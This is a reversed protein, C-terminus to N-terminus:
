VPHKCDHMIRAALQQTSSCSDCTQQDEVLMMNDRCVTIQDPFQRSDVASEQQTSHVAPSPRPPPPPPPRQVFRGVAGDEDGGTEAAETEVLVQTLHKGTGAAQRASQQPAKAVHTGRASLHGSNGTHAVDQSEHEEYPAPKPAKRNFPNVESSSALSSMQTRNRHRRDQKDGRQSGPAAASGDGASALSQLPGPAGPAAGADSIYSYNDYVDFPDEYDVPGNVLKDLNVFEYLDKLVAGTM